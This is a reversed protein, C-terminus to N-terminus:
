NSKFLGKQYVHIVLWGRLRDLTISWIMYKEPELEEGYRIMKECRGKFIEKGNDCDSVDIVMCYVTPSIYLRLDELTM